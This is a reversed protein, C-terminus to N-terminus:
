RAPLKPSRSGPPTTSPSPRPPPPLSFSSPPTFSHVPTSQQSVAPPKLLNLFKNLFHPPLLNLDRPDGILSVSLHRKVLSLEPHHLLGVLQRDEAVALDSEDDEGAAVLQVLIGASIHVLNEELVCLVVLGVLRERIFVDNVSQVLLLLTSTQAAWTALVTLVLLFECQSWSCFCLVVLDVFLEM